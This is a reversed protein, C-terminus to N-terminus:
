RGVASVAATSVALVSTMKMMPSTYVGFRVGGQVPLVRSEDDVRRGQVLCGTSLTREARIVGLAGARRIVIKSGAGSRPVVGERVGGDVYNDVAKALPLVLPAASMAVASASGVGFPTIKCSGASSSVKPTFTFFPQSDSTSGMM